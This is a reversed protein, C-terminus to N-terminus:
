FPLSFALSFLFSLLSPLLSVLDRTANKTTDGTRVYNDKGREREIVRQSYDLATEYDNLKLACLAINGNVAKEIETRETNSSDTPLYRIVQSSPLLLILFLSLPLHVLSWSFTFICLSCATLQTPLSHVHVHFLGLRSFFFALLSLPLSPLPFSPPLCLLFFTCSSFM